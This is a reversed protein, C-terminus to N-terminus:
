ARLASRLETAADAASNSSTLDVWRSRGAYPSVVGVAYVSTYTTNPLYRELTITRGTSASDIETVLEAETFAM